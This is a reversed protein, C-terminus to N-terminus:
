NKEVNEFRVEIELNAYNKFIEKLGKELNSSYKGKYKLVIKQNEEEVIANLNYKQVIANAIELNTEFKKIIKFTYKLTHDSLPHNFDVTVRGGNVSKVRAYAGDLELALGPYPEIKHKRFENIPYVKILNPNRKGFGKEPPIIIEYEKGIEKNELAEDLGKVVENNGVKIIVNKANKILNPDTTDFVEGNELRGTFSLEVIDGKKIM